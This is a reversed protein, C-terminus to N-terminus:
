EHTPFGAAARALVLWNYEKKIEGEKVIPPAIREFIGKYKTTAEATVVWFPLYILTRETVKSKKALDGPKMFGARMWDLILNEIQEPSYSNLLMAHEFNFAQGTEIVTTFGCYKCTAVLEGPTFDVPAGCHSCRINQAVAM